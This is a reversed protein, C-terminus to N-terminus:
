KKYYDWILTARTLDTGSIIHVGKRLNVKDEYAKEDIVVSGSSIVNGKEDQRWVLYDGPVFVEYSVPGKSFDFIRGVAMVNGVELTSVYNQEIFDKERKPFKAFLRANRERVVFKNQREEMQEIFDPLKYSILDRYDTFAVCCEFYGDKRFVYSGAMDYFRDDKNSHAMAFDLVRYDEFARWKLKSRLYFAELTSILCLLIVICLVFPVFISKGNDNRSVSAGLSYSPFHRLLRIYIAVGSQSRPRLSMTWLLVRDVASGVEVLFYATFISIFPLLVLFYQLYPIYFLYFIAVVGVAFPVFLLVFKLFSESNFIGSLAFLVWGSLGLPKGNQAAMEFTRKLGSRIGAIFLTLVGLLSIIWLVINFVLEFSIEKFTGYIGWFPQFALLPSFHTYAHFMQFNIPFLFLYAEPLVGWWLFLFVLTLSAAFVGLGWVSVLTIVNIVKIFNTRGSSSGEGIKKLGLLLVLPLIGALFVVGKLLAVVSLGVFFGSLFLIPWTMRFSAFFGSPSLRLERSGEGVVAPDPHCFCKILLYYGALFLTLMLNDPRFEISKDLAIPYTAGLFFALIAVKKGFLRDSIKYILVLSTLTLVFVLVRGAMLSVSTEGFIWIIPVFLLSFPPTYVYFFDRFPVLGQGLLYGWHMHAFEDPDFFRSLGIWFRIVLISTVSLFLFINPLKKKM